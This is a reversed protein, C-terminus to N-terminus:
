LIIDSSIHVLAFPYNLITSNMPQVPIGFVSFSYFFFSKFAFPTLMLNLSFSLSSGSESGSSESSSSSSYSGSSSLKSSILTVANNAITLSILADNDAPFAEAMPSKDKYLTLDITGQVQVLVSLM